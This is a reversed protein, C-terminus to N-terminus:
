DINTALFDTVDSGFEFRVKGICIDERQPFHEFDLIYLPIKRVNSFDIILPLPPENTPPMERIAENMCMFLQVTRVEDTNLKLKKISRHFIAVKEDYRAESTETRAGRIVRNSALIIRIARYLKIM